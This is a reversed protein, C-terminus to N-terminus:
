VHGMTFASVGTEPDERRADNAAVEQCTVQISIITAGKSTLYSRVAEDTAAIGADSCPGPGVISLAAKQNVRNDPTRRPLCAANIIRRTPTRTSTGTPCKWCACTGSFPRLQLLRRAGGVDDVVSAATADEAVDEAGDTSGDDVALIGQAELAVAEAADQQDELDAQAIADLMDQPLPEEDSAVAAAAPDSQTAAAANRPRTCSACPVEAFRPCTKPIRTGITGYPSWIRQSVARSIYSGYTM